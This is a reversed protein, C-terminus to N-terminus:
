PLEGAIKRLYQGLLRDGASDGIRRLDWRTAGPLLPRVQAVLEIVEALVQREGRLLVKVARAYPTAEDGPVVPIAALRDRAATALAECAAAENAEGIWRVGHQRLYGRELAIMLERETVVALRAQSLALRTDDDFQKSVQVEWPAGLPRNWLLRAILDGRIDIEPRPLVVRAADAPNDPVCFGYGTLLRVNSKHGYSLHIEEGARFSRAATIVMGGAADDCRYAVDGSGHDLTDAIPILARGLAGEAETAFVRSAGIACGWALEALSLDLWPKVRRAVAAHDDLVAQRRRAVDDLVPSGVLPTLAAADQFMPLGPVRDPLADLYPRWRSEPDHREAILAVALPTHESALSLNAIAECIPRRAQELDFWLTRPVLLVREGPALDRAAHATRYGDPATRIELASVDAGGARAWTLLRATALAPDAPPAPRVPRVSAIPLPTWGSITARDRDSPPVPPRPGAHLIAGALRDALVVCAAEGAAGRFLAASLEVGYAAAIEDRLAEADFEVTM